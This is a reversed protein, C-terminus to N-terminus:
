VNRCEPADAVVFLPRKRVLSDWVGEVISVDVENVLHITRKGRNLVRHMVGGEIFRSLLM